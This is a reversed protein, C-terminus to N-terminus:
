RKGREIQARLALLQEIPMSELDKPSLGDIVHATRETPEGVSLAGLKAAIDAMVAATQMSWRAPKVVNMHIETTHGDAGQRRKTVQEVQALPFDLMSAVRDALRQSQQWNREALDLARQARQAALAERERQREINEAAAVRDVWAYAASWTALTSDQRTPASSGAEVRSRYSKALLSLSRGPGLAYFDHLAQNAKSSEGAVLALPDAADWQIM